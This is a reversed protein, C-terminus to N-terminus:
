RSYRGGVICMFVRSLWILREWDEAPPGEDSLLSLVHIRTGVEWGNPFLGPYSRVCDVYDEIISQITNTVEEIDEARISTM